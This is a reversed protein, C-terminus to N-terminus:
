AAQADEMGGRQNGSDGPPLLIRNFVSQRADFGMASPSTNGPVSNSEMRVLFLGPLGSESSGTAMLDATALPNAYYNGLDQLAPDMQSEMSGSTDRDALIPLLHRIHALDDEASYSQAMLFKNSHGEWTRSRDRKGLM